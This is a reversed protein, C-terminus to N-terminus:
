KSITNRSYFGIKLTGHVSEDRLILKIIEAVNALKNNGLYYLPTYFGSYFLFSELFVSAVKKELPSGTQYIHNIKTAKYQLIENTNTWEFLEDIEKKTNLTSFITSYSQAHVSEMMHINSIVAKEQPTRADELISPMGDQSQVTDLLTLGALVRAVLVKENEPLKRWDPLDNSVPVRTSVWFQSLLKEWTLKDVMDEVANWNIAEYNQNYVM